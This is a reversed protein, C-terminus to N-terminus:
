GCQHSVAPITATLQQLRQIQLEHNTFVVDIDHGQQVIRGLLVAATGPWATAETAQMAAELRITRERLQGLVNRSTQDLAGIAQVLPAVENPDLM